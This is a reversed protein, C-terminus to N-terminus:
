GLKKDRFEKIMDRLKQPNNIVESSEIRIFSIAKFEIDSQRIEDYEKQFKHIEGDIEVTLKLEPCYFDVVYGVLTHQRRFKLGLCRRGRLMEWVIKESPTQSSRLSRAFQMKRYNGYSM